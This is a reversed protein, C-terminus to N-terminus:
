RAAVHPPRGRCHGIVVLPGEPAREDDDGEFRVDARRWGTAWRIGDAGVLWDFAQVGARSEPGDCASRVLVASPEPLDRARGAIEELWREFGHEPWVCESETAERAALNRQPDRESQSASREGSVRAPSCVRPRSRLAGDRRTSM